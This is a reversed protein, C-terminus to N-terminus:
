IDGMRLVVKWCEADYWEEAIAMKTSAEELTDVVDFLGAWTLEGNEDHREIVIEYM